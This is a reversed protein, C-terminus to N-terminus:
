TEEGDNEDFVVRRVDAEDAGGEFFVADDAFEDYEPIALVGDTEDFVEIHRGGTRIEEDDIEIKRFAGAALDEFAAAAASEAGHGDDNEARRVGRLVAGIGIAEADIKVYLLGRAEIIEEADAGDEAFHEAERWILIRNGTNVGAGNRRYQSRFRPRM